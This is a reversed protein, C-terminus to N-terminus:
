HPWAYTSLSYICIRLSHWSPLFSWSLQFDFSFCKKKISVIIELMLVVPATYFMFSFCTCAQFVECALLSPLIIFSSAFRQSVLGSVCWCFIIRVKSFTCPRLCHPTSALKAYSHAEILSIFSHYSSHSQKFYLFFFYGSFSCCLLFSFLFCWLSFYYWIFFPCLFCFFVFCSLVFLSGHLIFAQSSM